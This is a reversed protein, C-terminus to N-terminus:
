CVWKQYERLCTKKDDGLMYFENCSCRFGGDTNTCVQACKAQGNTCENIDTFTLHLAPANMTKKIM